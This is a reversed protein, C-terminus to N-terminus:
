ILTIMLSILGALLGFLSIILPIRFKSDPHKLLGRINSFLGLKILSLNCNNFDKINLDLDISDYDLEITDTPLSKIGSGYIKRYIKRKNKNNKIIIWSRRGGLSNIHANHIICAADKNYDYDNSFQKVNSISIKM